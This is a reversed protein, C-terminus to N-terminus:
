GDDRATDDARPTEELRIVNMVFRGVDSEAFLRPPLGFSRAMSRFAAIGRDVRARFDPTIERGGVRVHTVDATRQLREMFQASGELPAIVHRYYIGLALLERMVEGHELYKRVRLSRSKEAWRALERSKAEYERAMPERAAYPLDRLYKQIVM